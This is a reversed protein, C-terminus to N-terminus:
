DICWSLLLDLFLPRSLSTYIFKKDLDQGKRPVFILLQVPLRTVFVFGAFDRYQADRMKLVIAIRKKYAKSLKVMVQM